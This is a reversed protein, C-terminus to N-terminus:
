FSPCNFFETYLGAAADVRVGSQLWIGGEGSCVAVVRRVSTHGQGYSISQIQSIPLRNTKYSTCIAACSLGKLILSLHCYGHLIEVGWGDVRWGM